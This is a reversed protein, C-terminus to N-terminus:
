RRTLEVLAVAEAAAVHPPATRAGSRDPPENYGATRADDPSCELWGRPGARFFRSRVHSWAAHGTVGALDDADLVRVWGRNSRLGFPVSLLLTGGPLTVRRLERMAEAVATAPDAPM